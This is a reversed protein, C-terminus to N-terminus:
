ELVISILLKQYHFAYSGVSVEDEQKAALERAVIAPDLQSFENSPILQLDVVRRFEADAKSCRGFGKGPCQTCQDDLCAEPKRIFFQDLLVLFAWLELEEDAQLCKLM